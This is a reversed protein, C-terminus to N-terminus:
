REEQIACTSIQAPVPIGRFVLFVNETHQEQLPQAIQKVLFAHLEALIRLGFAHGIVDNRRLEALLAGTAGIVVFRTNEFSM